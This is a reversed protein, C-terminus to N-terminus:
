VGEADMRVTYRSLPVPMQHAKRFDDVAQGNDGGDKNGQGDQEM